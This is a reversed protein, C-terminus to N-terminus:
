TAAAPQPRRRVAGAPFAASLILYSVFAVVLGVIWSYDYFTFPQYLFPILGKAPFPGTTGPATYAGGVALVGGLLLSVLGRWNFGASYRYEGKERYLDGLKLITSRMVWYDAILVGAIAGLAGGYFGLWTFIYVHPDSYLRWPQIAIGLVGTILGGLRFSILKPIANSFDYSPSVVNAAINVSLTAVALTFLALVIIVPNNFKSTLVIPDWIAKGYVVVTASTILVALLPFLTMTTPLGLTQGLAQARQSKGFRTFDPMNLSLTSWFAIQAMLAPFFLKWFSGGWGLSGNQTVIPGLGGAKIVMWGLLFLAVLIVFPAAWNEFRRVANIGRVIIAINLVWFIAFSLWLTWHQGAVMGANIWSSGFLSGALTYLAEGGIWTQIGFWGCAVGARLLAAVNAGFVGFSARAFVPYPIGYKTGAHSNLLMPVLVIFNALSITIIAQYWSMGLVVLGAALGYTPLNHAMGVWLAMYNYTNWTREKIPVPALDKNYLPSERIASDEALEHRGDPYVLEEGVRQAPPTYTAVGM